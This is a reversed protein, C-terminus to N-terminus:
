QFKGEVMEFPCDFGEPLVFLWYMNAVDVLNSQKPYVEVATREEGVLDNKIRQFIQWDHIPRADNWRIMLRMCEGWATSQKFMQVIFRGNMVVKYPPNTMRSTLKKTSELETIDTWDSSYGSRMLAAVHKEKARELARREKRTMIAQEREQKTPPIPRTPLHLECRWEKIQEIWYGTIERCITCHGNSTM